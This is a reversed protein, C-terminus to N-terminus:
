NLIWNLIKAINNADDVGRHHTGELPIKLLSLAASMGKENSLKKKLAFLTKVNIHSPGFPYGISMATCQKQFQKQDYAGFSAWPRGQSLYEEKLIRCAEKFEIGDKEIMELSITTLETCFTSIESREPRVLIGRNESIEGTRIDLLCVGVEIIDSEMGKPQGTNWCTAEIDVIVIKDLKNAM